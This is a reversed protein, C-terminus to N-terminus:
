KKNICFQMYCRFLCLWQIYLTDGSCPIGRLAISIQRKTLFTEAGNKFARNIFNYYYKRGSFDIDPNSKKSIHLLVSDVSPSPHFDQKAFYYKIKLDYFPKLLLSQLNDTPKGCFRKAAGKEMVLWTEIPPNDSQTLKRMIDTTISFPINSFVKYQSKPLQTQLFDKNILKINSIEGFEEILRKYLYRDYEVATVFNCKDILARTIHGKGAGIELIDDIKTIDTIRLLRDIIKRSTM